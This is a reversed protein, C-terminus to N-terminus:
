RATEFWVLKHTDRREIGWASALEDVVLLRRAAGEGEPEPRQIPPARGEEVEIRISRADTDVTLCIMGHGHIANTVLESVLLVAVEIVSAEVGDAGLVDSTFVRAKRVSPPKGLLELAKVMRSGMGPLPNM